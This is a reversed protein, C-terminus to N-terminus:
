VGLILLILAALGFAVSFAVSAVAVKFRMGALQGVNCLYAMGAAALAAVGAAKAGDLAAFAMIGTLYLLGFVLAGLFLLRERQRLQERVHEDALFAKAGGIPAAQHKIDTM